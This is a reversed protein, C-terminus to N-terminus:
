KKFEPNNDFFDQYVVFSRELMEAVGAGTFTAGSIGDVQHINLENGPKKVELKLRTKGDEAM